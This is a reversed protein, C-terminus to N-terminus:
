SNFFFFITTKDTHLIKLGKSQVQLIEKKLNNLARCLSIQHMVHLQEKFMEKVHAALGHAACSLVHCTATKRINEGAHAEARLHAGKEKKM